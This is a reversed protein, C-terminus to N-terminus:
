FLIEKRKEKKKNREEKGKSKRKSWCNKLIDPFESWRIIKRAGLCSHFNEDRQYKLCIKSWNM